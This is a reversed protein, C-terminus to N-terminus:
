AKQSEEGLFGILATFGNISTCEMVPHTPCGGIYYFVDEDKDEILELKAILEKVTLNKM